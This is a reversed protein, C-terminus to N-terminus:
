GGATGDGQPAQEKAVFAKLKEANTTGDQNNIDELAENVRSQLAPDTVGPIQGAAALNQLVVLADDESMTSLQTIDVQGTTANIAFKNLYMISYAAQYLTLQLVASAAYKEASTEGIKDAPILHLVDVSAKMDGLSLEYGDAGREAPDPLFSTMQEILSGGSAFKAKAVSLIDFGARSAYAAALLPDRAYNEPEEAILETLLQIATDLDGEDLAKRADEEKTRASCPVQKKGEECDAVNATGGCGALLSAGFFMLAQVRKKM